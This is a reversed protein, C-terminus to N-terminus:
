HEDGGIFKMELEDAYYALKTLPKVLEDESLDDIPTSHKLYLRGNLSVVGGCTFVGAYNLIKDIEFQYNAGIPSLFQIWREGNEEEILAMIVQQSRKHSTPLDVTIFKEEIEANFNRKMYEKVAKWIAM